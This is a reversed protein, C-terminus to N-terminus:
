FKKVFHMGLIPCTRGRRRVERMDAREAADHLLNGQIYGLRLSWGQPRDDIWLGRADIGAEGLAARLM